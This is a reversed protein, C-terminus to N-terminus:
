PFISGTVLDKLIYNREHSELAVTVDVFVDSVDERSTNVIIILKEKGVGRLYAIIADSKEGNCELTQMESGWLAKQTARIENIKEYAIANSHDADTNDKAEM